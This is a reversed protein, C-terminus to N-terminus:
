DSSGPQDVWYVQRSQNWFDEKGEFNLRRLWLEQTKPGAQSDFEGAYILFQLKM